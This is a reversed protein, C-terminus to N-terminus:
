AATKTHTPEDVKGWRASGRYYGGKPDDVYIDAHDTWSVPGGGVTIIVYSDLGSIDVYTLSNNQSFAYLNVGGAEGIPDRSLWRQSRPRISGTDTTVCVPAPM